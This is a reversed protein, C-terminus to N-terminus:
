DRMSKNLAKFLFVGFLVILFIGVMCLVLTENMFQQRLKNVLRYEVVAEMPDSTDKPILNLTMYMSDEMSFVLSNGNVPDGTMIECYKMQNCDSPKFVKYDVISNWYQSYFYLGIDINSYDKIIIQYVNSESNQYHFKYSCVTGDVSNIDIKEWEGNDTLNVKYPENSFYNIHEIEKEKLSRTKYYNALITDKADCQKPIHPCM